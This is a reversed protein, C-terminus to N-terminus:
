GADKDLKEFLEETKAFRSKRSESISRSEEIAARTEANPRKFEAPLAGDEVIRTLAMRLVDSATLGMDSLITEAEAKVTADVEARVSSILAMASDWQQSRSSVM